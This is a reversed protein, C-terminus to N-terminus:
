INIKPKTKLDDQVRHVSILGPYVQDLPPAHHGVQVRFLVPREHEWFGDERGDRSILILKYTGLFFFILNFLFIRYLLVRYTTANKKIYM